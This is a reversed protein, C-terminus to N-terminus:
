DRKVCRFIEDAAWHPKGWPKGFPKPIKGAKRWRHITSVSVDFIAATEKLSLYKRKLLHGNARVEERVIRRLANLLEDSIL